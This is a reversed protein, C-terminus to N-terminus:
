ESSPEIFYDTGVSWVRNYNWSNAFRKVEERATVVGSSLAFEVTRILPSYYAVHPYSKDKCQLTSDYPADGDWYESITLVLIGDKCSSQDAMVEVQATATATLDCQTGSESIMKGTNTFSIYCPPFSVKNKEVLFSCSASPETMGKILMIETQMGPSFEWSHTLFLTFNAAEQPCYGAVPDSPDPESELPDRQKHAEEIVDDLLDLASDGQSGEGEPEGGGDSDAEGEGDSDPSLDIEDFEVEEGGAESGSGEPGVPDSLLQGCGSATILFVVTLIGSVKILYNGARKGAM